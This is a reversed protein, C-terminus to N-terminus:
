SSVLSTTTCSQASVIFWSLYWREIYMSQEAISDDSHTVEKNAKLDPIRSVLHWSDLLFSLEGDEELLLRLREDHGM